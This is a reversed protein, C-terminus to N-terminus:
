NPKWLKSFKLVNPVEDNFMPYIVACSKEGGLTTNEHGLYVKGLQKIKEFEKRNVRIVCKRFSNHLWDEYLGRNDRILFDLHAGLVSHAVLTPVMYDPCDELVAIYLKLYKVPVPKTDSTQNDSEIFEKILTHVVDPINKLITSHCFKNFKLTENDCNFEIVPISEYFEYKDVDEQRYLIYDSTNHPRINFYRLVWGDKELLIPEEKNEKKFRMCTRTTGFISAVEQQQKLIEKGKNIHEYLTPMKM